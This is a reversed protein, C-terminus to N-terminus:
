LITNQIYTELDKEYIQRYNDFTIIPLGSAVRSKNYKKFAKNLQAETYLIM